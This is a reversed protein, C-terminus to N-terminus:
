ASAVKKKDEVAEIYGQKISGPINMKKPPTFEEGAKANLWGGKDDRISLDVLARYKM